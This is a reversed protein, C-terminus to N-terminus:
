VEIFVARGKCSKFGADILHREWNRDQVFAHLQTFKARGCTFLQAQLMQTLARQKIRPKADQNTMIVSEAIARVGGACVIETDEMVVFFNIFAHCFDNFSFEDKYFREHIQKLKEFDDDQFSRIIM